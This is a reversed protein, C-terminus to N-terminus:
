MRHCTLCLSSGINDKSLLNKQDGYPNHCSLCGVRGNFLPVEEPLSGRPFFDKALSGEPYEVGVPHSLGIGHQFDGSRVSFATERSITGDHCSLCEISHQDLPSGNQAQTLKGPAHAYTVVLRHRWNAGLTDDNHCVFCFSRGQAHGRLFGKLEQRSFSADDEKHIDHCTLCTMKGEKDLYRQLPISTKPSVGVPHSTRENIQHCPVCLREPSDTLAIDEFPTGPKPVEIHCLQCKGQFDHKVAGASVLEKIVFIMGIALFFFLGAWWKKYFSTFFIM